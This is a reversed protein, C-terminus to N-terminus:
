IIMGVVEELTVPRYKEVFPQEFGEEMEVELSLAGKARRSRMHDICLNSTIKYLWTLFSADQRFSGLATYARIFTDQVIDGADDASNLMRYALNYVQRQYKQVLDNYASLEGRLTRQVIIADTQEM